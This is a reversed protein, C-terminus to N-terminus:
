SRRTTKKAVMKSSQIRMKKAMRVDMMKRMAVTSVTTVKPENVFEGHFATIYDQGMSGVLESVAGDRRLANWNVQWDM